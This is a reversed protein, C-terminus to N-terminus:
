DGVYRYVNTYFTWTANTYIEDQTSEGSKNDYDDHAGVDTKDGIYIEVHRNPNILIDGRKLKSISLKGMSKFNDDNKLMTNLGGCAVPNTGSKCNAIFAKDQMGHALAAVVFSACDYDTSAGPHCFPCARDSLKNGLIGMSYGFESNDAITIAWSIMGEVGPVVNIKVTDTAGGIATATIVATGKTVGTVKGKSSVKAIDKDSSIWTVTDYVAKAPTATLQLTKTFALTQTSSGSIKVSAPFKNITIAEVTKTVGDHAMATIKVTGAKKAEVVGKNNVTALKSDSTSWRINDSVSGDAKAKYTKSEGVTIQNATSTFTVKTSNDAGAKVSVWDTYPGYRKSKYARVKLYKMKQALLLTKSKGTVTALKTYKGNEKTSYYIMYKDATGSASWSLKVYRYGLAKFDTQLSSQSVAANAKLNTVTVTTTTAAASDAAFIPMFAIILALSLVLAVSKRIISENKKM